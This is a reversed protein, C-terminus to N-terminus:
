FSVVMAVGVGGPDRSPVVWVHPGERAAPTPPRGNRRVVARGIGWGLGAGAVIDSFHHKSAALRSVAIFTALGYAPVGVRPGYHAALVSAATFANSTHGSPFSMRNSGDPRERGVALKVATTYVQTVIIAQSLDYTAARFRDHPVMRGAAFLGVTLGGVAIGGGMFAGIEGFNEHPHRRFWAIVEDDWAFAPATFAATVLLPFHNGRTVGGLFNYALNSGYSRLTRRKDDPPAGAAANAALAVAVVAATVIRVAPRREEM